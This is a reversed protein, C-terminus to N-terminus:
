AGIQTWFSPKRKITFTFSGSITTYVRGEMNETTTTVTGMEIPTENIYRLYDSLASVCFLNETESLIVAEDDYMCEDAFLFRYSIDNNYNEDDYSSSELGLLFMRPKTNEIEQSLSEFDKIYKFENIFPVNEVFKKLEMVVEKHSNIM